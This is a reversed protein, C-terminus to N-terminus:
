HGTLRETRSSVEGAIRDGRTAPTERRKGLLQQENRPSQVRGNTGHGLRAAKRTERSYMAHEGRVMKRKGWHPPRKKESGPENETLFHYKEEATQKKETERTEGSSVTTRRKKANIKKTST